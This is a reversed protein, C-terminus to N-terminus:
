IKGHLDQSPQPSLRPFVNRKSEVHCLIYFLAGDAATDTAATTPESISTM